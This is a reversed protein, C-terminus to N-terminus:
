LITLPFPFPTITGYGYILLVTFVASFVLNVLWRREGCVAMTFVMFLFTAVDFGITELSFALFGLAAILSIYRALDSRSEGSHAEAGATGERPFIGRVVLAALIIILVALPQILLLNTVRTSVGRADIVYALTTLVIVALLALHGWVVKRRPETTM